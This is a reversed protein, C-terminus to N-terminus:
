CGDQKSDGTRSGANPLSAAFKLAFFDNANWEPRCRGSAVLLGFHLATRVFRETGEHCFPLLLDDCPQHYHRSLYEMLMDEGSVASDASKYGPKLNLGPIGKQVFSYQDSRIFRVLEPRSDPTLQLGEQVAANRLEAELTSHEVGFAQVDAIAFGFYPMDINITAIIQEIPVPLHNVFYDSGLLGKEEATLAVFLVPRRPRTPLLSMARAIEIITAVGAANDYAGNYVNDVDIGPRIGLHDLHATFVLYEALAPTRGRLLGVVNPSTSFKQVSDRTIRVSMGLDFSGVGDVAYSSFIEDLSRGALDFLRIAGSESLVASGPLEPGGGHLAGDPDAWRMDPSGVGALYGAWPLRQQDVPTRVSIIGIAGREAATAAKTSGSSYYAREDTAFQPPAGTLEVLIKGAVDIGAFDDHDYEPATIGFGVFVLDASVDEHANGFGGRRVFDEGFTLEVDKGGKRVLLRASDPVLRTEFLRVSQFYTRDDGFPELGADRFADAVYNAARAYSQTGAERGEMDDSALIRMHEFVAKGTISAKAESLGSMAPPAERTCGALFISFVACIVYRTM